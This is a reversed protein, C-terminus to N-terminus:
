KNLADVVLQRLRGEDPAVTLEGEFAVSVAGREESVVLAVADSEESIGLAARHRTGLDSQHSRGASLPLICAAATIRSGQVVVAGDHLPTNPYFITILLDKTVLADVTVAREIVDGLPVSKQIVVLAGIRSKALTQLAALLENLADEGLPSKGRFLRGAGVESLAKRIDQQFIVVVVLFLSGLFNSLLWNLTFLDLEQSIVFLTIVLVLGYVVSVARTGKIFVILRYLLFTVIGIDLLDRWEIQLTYLEFM